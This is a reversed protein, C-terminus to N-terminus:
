VQVGILLSGGTVSATFSTSLLYRSSRPAYRPEWMYLAALHRCGSTLVVADSARESAVDRWGQSTQPDQHM